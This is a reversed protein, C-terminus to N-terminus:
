SSESASQPSSQFFMKAEQIDKQIQLTLEKRGAFKKEQRIYKLIEVEYWTDKLPKCDYNEIVHVELTEKHSPTSFTPSIGINMVAKYTRNRSKIRCVYVGTAPMIQKDDPKLNITPFGLTKGRGFGKFLSGKITFSRGLLGSVFDWHGSLVAERILSSSVTYGKYCVTNIVKLTFNHKGALVKLLQINGASNAGFHFNSGVIVLSPKLPLVIYKEIFEEPPIKSFVNTFPEVLLCSVGLKRLIEVIQEFSCLLYRKKEPHLIQYPHPHFTYVVSKKNELLANKLVCDILYRHGIHIGDFNGITLVPGKKLHYEHSGSIIEM